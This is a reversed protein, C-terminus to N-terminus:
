ILTFLHPVPAADTKNGMNAGWIKRRELSGQFPFFPPRPSGREFFAFDVENENMTM